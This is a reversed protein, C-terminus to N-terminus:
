KNKEYDFKVDEYFEAVITRYYPSLFIGGLGLTVVSLIAWGILSLQVCFLDFKHGRMMDSSLEIADLASIDDYDNLIYFTMSYRYIAIIGPIILLITLLMVFIAILLNALFARGWGNFGTLFQGFTGKKGRVINLFFFSAGKYLSGIVIMLLISLVISTIGRGFNYDINQQFQFSFIKIDAKRLGNNFNIGGLLSYTLFSVLIAMPWNNALKKISDKKLDSSNRTYM